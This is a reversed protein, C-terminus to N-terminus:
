FNYYLRILLERLNKIQNGHTSLCRRLPYGQAAFLVRQLDRKKPIHVSLSALSAM